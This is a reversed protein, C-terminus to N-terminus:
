AQKLFHMTQGKYAMAGFTEWFHSRGSLKGFVIAGCTERFHSRLLVLKNGAAFSIARQVLAM